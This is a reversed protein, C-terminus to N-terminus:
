KVKHIYVKLGKETAKDIMDKTGRSKGDWCAILAEAYDAMKKNRIPGASPGYTLWEAQFVKIPIGKDRAWREGLQDVGSCGGSVVETIKFESDRIAAFIEAFLVIKRSGAIITKMKITKPYIPILCVIGGSGLDSLYDVVM